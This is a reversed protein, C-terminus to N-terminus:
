QMYITRDASITDEDHSIIIVTTGNEKLTRIIHELFLKGDTDLYTDAEDFIIIRAGRFLARAIAIKQREGGSLSVSDTAALIGDPIRELMKGMGAAACSALADKIDYGSAGMVINELISGRFIDPRQPVIAIFQRWKRSPIHRIDIGDICIKGDTPSYGKMLLAALTSKGCGNPGKVLNIRGPLFECSLNEILKRRGPFSFSVNRLSLIEQGSFRYTHQLEKTEEQEMDMIEFIREASIHAESIEDNSEILLLVPSTLLSTMTLFSVLEGLSLQGNLIFYAGTVLTTAYMLRGICESAASTMISASSGKLISGALSIYKGEVNREAREEANCYLYTKACGLTEIATEEFLTNDEIIKRNWKRCVKGSIRYIIVFVPIFAATVAALRFNFTLMVTLSVAITLVSIVMIFLRGTIFARIRYADSVRANLEGVSRSDFFSAPLSFIKRFYGTILRCDIMLSVRTLLIGRIYSNVLGMMALSVLAVTYIALKGTNRDPLIEDIIRQLFLSTGITMCISAVTGALVPILEKGSGAVLEWLRKGTKTRFDGKRFNASPVASVIYGSWEETLQGYGVRHLRGDAPDMITAHSEGTAYLVVFHLWGNDKKQHLILPKAARKLCEANKERAKFGAADLGIKSCADIIGQMTTGDDGTGCADRITIMPLRLGFYACVSAICAAACDTRDHQKIEIERRM